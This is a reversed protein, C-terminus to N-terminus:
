DIVFICVHHMGFFCRAQVLFCARSVESPHAGVFGIHELLFVTEVLFGGPKEVYAGKHVLFLVQNGGKTSLFGVIHKRPTEKWWKRCSKLKGSPKDKKPHFSEMAAMEEKKISGDAREYSCQQMDVAAGEGGEGICHARQNKEPFENVIPQKKKRTSLGLDNGLLVGGGGGAM